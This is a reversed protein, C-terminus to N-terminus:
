YRTDQSSDGHIMERLQDDIAMCMGRSRTPHNCAEGVCHVSYRGRPKQVAIVFGVADGRRARELLEELAEITETSIPDRLLELKM